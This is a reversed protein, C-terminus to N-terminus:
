WGSGVRRSDFYSEDGVVGGTVRRIGFARVGRALARLDARSLTPDGFGKLVLEGRWTTGDLAGDGLVDTEIKFDSGLDHLAAFALALKETSAPLFGRQANLAFVQRGTRLDIAVAGTQASRVHPVALAKALRAELPAAARAPGPALLAAALAIVAWPRPGARRGLHAARGM